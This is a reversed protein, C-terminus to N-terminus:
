RFRDAHALAWQEFSRPAAATLDRVTPLVHADHYTGDVFFSRFAEAYERPMSTLMDAFAVDDPQAQFRLPRRLVTALIAVQEAPVMPGPGTLRYIQGAHTDGSLALARDGSTPRISVRSPFAGGFPGVVVDGDRLQPLWRLANSM